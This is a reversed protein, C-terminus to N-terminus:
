IGNYGKLTDQTYILVLGLESVGGFHSSLVGRLVREEGDNLFVKV